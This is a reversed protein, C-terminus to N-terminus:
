GATSRRGWDSRRRSASSPARYFSATDRAAGRILAEVGTSRDERLDIRPQYFLEFEDQELATRMDRELCRRQSAKAEMEPAFLRFKSRGEEKARYLALDAAEILAEPTAGHDSFLAVGASAALLM